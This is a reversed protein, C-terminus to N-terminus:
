QVEQIDNQPDDILAYVCIHMCICMCICMHLKTCVCIYKIAVVSHVCVYMNFM